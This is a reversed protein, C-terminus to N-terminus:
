FIASPESRRVTRRKCGGAVFQYLLAVQRATDRLTGGNDIRVHAAARKRRVDAQFRERRAFERPSWGRARATRRARVAAPADVFVLWACARRLPSEMLLPVDLVIPRGGRRARRLRERIRARVRPHILGNLRRLARPDGFVRRGLAARDVRGKADLVADGWRARVARRVAPARLAEHALRDADIVRAGRARLLGAVLSKGSGVGGLLGVVPAGHRAARPDRSVLLTRADLPGRTAM